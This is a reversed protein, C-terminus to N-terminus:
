LKGYYGEKLADFLCAVLHIEGDYEVEQDGQLEVTEGNELKFRYTTAAIDEEKVLIGQFAEPNYRFTTCGKLGKNFAMLYIEKFQNFSFDTPVNITKSIASDIWKQAAAQITLHAEPAITNTDVFNDPLRNEPSKDDPDANANVLHRYALLEFSLVNVKEKTKRGDRIIYRSYKHLFSPEIGNSTNNALSLSITGTPAISTHHTFRSGTVAIENRLELPFQAIYNSYSALLVKGPINDGVKIGDSAMKPRKALMAADVTFMEDMIPAPGKEKALDVGAKWGTLAMEKSVRKTFTVSEPDGYTQGLMIIASGLGLFGMGHRRKRTIERDQEVLPLGHIEVVNDLMRTFIRVVERFRNWNFTAQPTFPHSIFRTLNVSGLLCSGYPPLPQEGCPNTARIEECFM